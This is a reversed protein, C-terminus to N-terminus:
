MAKSQKMRLTVWPLWDRARRETSDFYSIARTRGAAQVRVVVNARRGRGGVVVGGCWGM